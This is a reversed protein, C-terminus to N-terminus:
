VQASRKSCLQELLLGGQKPEVASINLLQLAECGALMEGMHLLDQPSSPGGARRGMACQRARDSHKRLLGRRGAEIKRITDSSVCLTVDFEKLSPEGMTALAALGFYAHYVDPPGSPHKSFGGIIHQTKEMLFRRVPERAVDVDTGDGGGGHLEGLIALAGSVWWCYCTDAVKNCRGNLGVFEACPSGAAAASERSLIRPQPFNGDDEDDGTSDAAPDQYAFQRSVLFRLLLPVDM